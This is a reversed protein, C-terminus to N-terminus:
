HNSEGSAVHHILIFIDYHSYQLCCFSRLCCYGIIPSHSSRAFALQRVFSSYICLFVSLAYSNNILFHCCNFNFSKVLMSDFLNIPLQTDMTEIDTTFFSMINQISCCKFFRLTARTVGCFLKDHINISARLCLKFFLFSRHVTFYLLTCLIISYFYIFNVWNDYNTAFAENERSSNNISSIGTLNVSLVHRNPM